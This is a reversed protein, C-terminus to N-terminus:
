FVLTLGFLKKGLFTPVVCPKGPNVKMFDHLQSETIPSPLALATKLTKRVAKVDQFKGSRSIRGSIVLWRKKMTQEWTPLKKVKFTEGVIGILEEVRAIDDNLDDSRYGVTPLEGDHSFPTHFDEFESLYDAADGLENCIDALLADEDFDLFEEEVSRLFSLLDGLTAKPNNGIWKGHSNSVAEKLSELEAAKEEAETRTTKATATKTTLKTAM